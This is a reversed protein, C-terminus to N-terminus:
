RSNHRISSRAPIALCELIWPATTMAVAPLLKKSNPVDPCARTCTSRRPRAHGPSASQRAEDLSPFPWRAWRVSAPQAGRPTVDMWTRGAHSDQVSRRQKKVEPPRQGVGIGNPEREDIAEAQEKAATTAGDSTRGSAARGYRADISSAPDSRPERALSAITRAISDRHDHLFANLLFRHVQSEAM